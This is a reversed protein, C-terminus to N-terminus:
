RVGGQPAEPIEQVYVQRWSHVTLYPSTRARQKSAFAEAEERTDFMRQGNTTILPYTVRFQTM